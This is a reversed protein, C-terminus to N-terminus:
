GWSGALRRALAPDPAALSWAANHQEVDLLGVPSALPGTSSVLGHLHIARLSGPVAALVPLAVALQGDWGARGAGLEVTTVDGEAQQLAVALLEVDDGGLWWEFPPTSGWGPTSRLVAPDVPRRRDRLRGLRDTVGRRPPLSQRWARRRAALTGRDSRGRAVDRWLSADDYAPTAEFLIARGLAPAVEAIAAVARQHAVLMGDLASTADAGARRRFPPRSATLWGDSAAVNPARFTVVARAVGEIRSAVWRAHDAFRPPAWSSLWPEQGLWSPWAADCLVVVSSLSARGAAELVRVYHALAAEDREDPRRELRAWEVTLRLEGFGLQAARAVLEDLHDYTGPSRVSARVLGLSQAVGFSTQPGRETDYGGEVAFGDITAGLVVDHLSM